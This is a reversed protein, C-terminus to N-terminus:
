WGQACVIHIYCESDFLVQRTCTYMYTSNYIYTSTRICTHLPICTMYMYTPTCTSTACQQYSVSNYYLGSSTLRDFYSMSLVTAPIVKVSVSNISRAICVCVISCSHSSYCVIMIIILHYIHM